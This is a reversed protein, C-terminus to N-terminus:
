PMVEPFDNIVMQGDIEADAKGTLCRPSEWAVKHGCNWCYNQGVDHTLECGCGSCTYRDYKEGFKGKYFRPKLPEAQFIQYVFRNRMRDFLEHLDKEHTFDIMAEFRDLANLADKGGIMTGFDKKRAILEELRRNEIQKAM